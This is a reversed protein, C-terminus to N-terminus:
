LKIKQSVGCGVYTAFVIEQVAVADVSVAAATAVVVVAAVAIFETTTFIIPETPLYKLKM